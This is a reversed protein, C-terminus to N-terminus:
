LIRVHAFVLRPVEQHLEPDNQLYSLSHYTPVVLDPRLVLRLGKFVVRVQVQEEFGAFHADRKSRRRSSKALSSSHCGTFVKPRSEFENVGSADVKVSWDIEQQEDSSLDLTPRLNFHDFSYKKILFKLLLEFHVNM